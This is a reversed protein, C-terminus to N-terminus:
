HNVAELLYKSPKFYSDRKAAVEVRAGTKPNRAIRPNRQRIRFSGFGRIEAKDGRQIAAVMGDFIAEVISEAGDRPVERLQRVAEVIEAKTM